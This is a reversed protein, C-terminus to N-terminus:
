VCACACLIGTFACTQCVSPASAATGGEDRYIHRSTSRWWCREEPANRHPIIPDEANFGPFPDYNFM